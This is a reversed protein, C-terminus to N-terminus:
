SLIKRILVAPVAFGGVIFCLIFNAIPYAKDFKTYDPMTWLAFGAVIWYFGIAYIM